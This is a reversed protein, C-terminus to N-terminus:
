EVHRFWSIIENQKAVSEDGSLYAFPREGKDLAERAAEHGGYRVDAFVIIKTMPEEKLVYDIDKLLLKCRAESCANIKLLKELEEEALDELTNFSECAELLKTAKTYEEEPMCLTPTANTVQVQLDMGRNRQCAAKVYEHAATQVTNRYDRSRTDDQNNLFMDRGSEREEKRWHFAAGTIYTSGM